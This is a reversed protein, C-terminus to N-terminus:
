TTFNESHGLRQQVTVEVGCHDYGTVAFGQLFGKLDALGDASDDIHVVYLYGASVKDEKTATLDNHM